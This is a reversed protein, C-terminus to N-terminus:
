QAVEKQNAESHQSNRKAADFDVVLAGWRRSWDFGVYKWKPHEYWIAVLGALGALNSAVQIAIMWHGQLELIYCFASVLYLTAARPFNLLMYSILTWLAFAMIGGAHGATAAMIGLGAAVIVFAFVREIHGRWWSALALAVTVAIFAAVLTM